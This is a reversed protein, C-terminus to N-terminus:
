GQAPPMVRLYRCEQGGFDLEISFHLFIIKSRVTKVDTGCCRRFTVYNILIGVGQDSTDQWGQDVRASSHTYTLSVGCM